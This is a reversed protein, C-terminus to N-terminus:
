GKDDSDDEVHEMVESVDDDDVGLDSADEMLGDDVDDELDDDDDVEDDALPEVDNVVPAPAKEKARAAAMPRAPKIDAAFNNVTGCTPCEASERNLDYFRAGCHLCNRKKGM